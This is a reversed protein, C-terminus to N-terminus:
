PKEETRTQKRNVVRWVGLGAAAGFTVLWSVGAGILAWEETPTPGPPAPKIALGAPTTVTTFMAVQPRTACCAVWVATMCVSAVALLLTLRLPRV